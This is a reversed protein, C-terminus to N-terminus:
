KHVFIGVIEKGKREVRVFGFREFQVIEDNKVDEFSREVLGKVEKLSDPNYNEGIFLPGPVLVSIEFSDETVWQIKEM